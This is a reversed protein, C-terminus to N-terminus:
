PAAGISKVEFLSTGLEARGFEEIFERSSSDVMADFVRSAEGGSGMPRREANILMLRYENRSEEGRVAYERLALNAAHRLFTARDVIAYASLEDAVRLTAAQGLGTRSVWSGPSIGAAEWIKMERQHTGSQDGRSVFPSNAAAIRQFAIRWDTADGIRAPDAAPGVLIFDNHMLVQHRQVIGQDLLRREHLPAHLLVLDAEGRIALDAAQGSGVALVEIRADFRADLWDAWPELLGSDRVSTTAVLRVTRDESDPGGRQRCGWAAALVGCMWARRGVTTM